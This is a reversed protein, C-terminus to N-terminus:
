RGRAAREELLEEIGVLRGSGVVGAAEAETQGEGAVQGGLGPQGEELAPPGLQGTPQGGVPDPGRPLGEVDVGAGQDLVAGLGGLM